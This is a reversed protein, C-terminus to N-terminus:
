APVAPSNSHSSLKLILHHNMREPVASSLLATRIGVENQATQLLVPPRIVIGTPEMVVAVAPQNVRKSRRTVIAIQDNDLQVFTGPPCLGVV